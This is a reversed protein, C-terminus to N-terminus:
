PPTDSGLSRPPLNFSETDGFRERLKKLARFLLQKVAAPSKGLREAIEASQMGEIRSLRIVQEYEPPLERLARVLREFREERRLQASPRIQDGPLELFEERDPKKSIRRAQKRIVNEAITGLWRLFSDEGRWYFRGIGELGLRFSEQLVDDSEIEKMMSPGLRTLVIRELRSSFREALRGFAVRDGARARDVLAETTSEDLM